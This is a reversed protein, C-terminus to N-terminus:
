PLVELIAEIRNVFTHRDRVTAMLERVRAAAGPRRRAEEADAFLQYTDANFVLRGDFLEDVATSNTVGLQGYSINKFIRCPVYGEELQWTGAVAPALCSRQVLEIHTDRSVSRRQIFAVGREACARRFGDLERVNGFRGEGITGIWYSEAERPLDASEFRIENPLLDTAWPQYLVGDAYYAASGVRDLTRSRVQNACYVQITLCNGRVSAYRQGDCNHLVYKCDRRIPIRTDVQGETLFLAGGFDIGSVDDHDDVWYVDYGLHRFARAFGEHVYSHTHSFLKHGWVVVTRAM